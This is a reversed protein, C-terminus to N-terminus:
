MKELLTAAGSETVEITLTKHLFQDEEGYVFYVKWGPGHSMVLRPVKRVVVEILARHHRLSLYLNLAVALVQSEKTIEM